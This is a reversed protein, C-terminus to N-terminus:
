QSAQAEKIWVQAREQAAKMDLRTALALAARLCATGIHPSGKETLFRGLGLLAWPRGIPFVLAFRSMAKMAQRTRQEAHSEELTGRCSHWLALSVELTAIYGIMFTPAPPSVKQMRRLALECQEKALELQGARLACLALAGNLTLRHIRSGGQEMQRESERMEALAKPVDGQLLRVLAQWARGSAALQQNGLKIGSQECLAGQAMAEALRGREWMLSALINHGVAAQGPEHREQAMELARKLRIECEQWRGEAFAILGTFYYYGALPQVGGDILGQAEALYFRSLAPAPVLSATHGLWSLYIVQYQRNEVQEAAHLASLILYLTVDFHSKGVFLSDGTGIVVNLLEQKLSLAESSHLATPGLLRHRLEIACERLLAILREPRTEPIPQGLLAMVQQIARLCDENRGGGYLARTLRRLTVSKELVTAGAQSQLQFARELMEAAGSLGGRRLAEAGGLSLYRGAKEWEGAKEYHHGLAGVHPGQAGYLREMAQAILRHLRRKEDSELMAIVQERLKDHAFQWEADSIELIAADTCLQLWGDLKPELANLTARDIKRGSVAALKLLGLAWDPVSSLRRSIVSQIGRAFVQQPLARKGIEDLSGAEEALARVVEVMFFANGATERRLLDLVESQGGATGLMATSLEGITKEDFRLLKLHRAGPILKPLDPREDDRFSAVILMPRTSVIATVAKIVGISEASAWQLDELIMLSPVDSRTYFHVLVRLFRLQTAHAGLALADPIERGLLTPLDPILLKLVSADEHDIPTDLALSRSLALFPQRVLGATGEAHGRLVRVGSVLAWTRLEDLLRSKGVGSEGGVLFTSGHGAKAAALAAKLTDFEADRGVFRAAQLFSERAAASAPPLEKGALMALARLAEQASKWRAAPTQALLRLTWNALATDAGFLGTDPAPSLGATTVMDDDGDEQEDPHRGTILEYAIVGVAYLDSVPTHAEGLLVEPAVYGLTGAVARPTADGPKHELALGFDLVKVSLLDGDRLLLLNSPKLDRHLIGRRHLYDLARLVQALIDLRREM